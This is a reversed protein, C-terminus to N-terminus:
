GRALGVGSAGGPARAVDLLQIRFVLVANPPIVPPGGEVGYGLEPPVYLIWEDGVKMRQLAETWGPVVQEPTTVYPAGRGFSSDFVTGDTLAGEYNVSVLDNRDPSEGGPPGSKVVKYQLGSPLTQVGEARANSTMFFAAAEAREELAAGDDGRGCASLLVLGAMAAASAWGFRM